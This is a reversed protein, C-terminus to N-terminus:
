LDKDTLVHTDMDSGSRRENYYRLLTHLLRFITNSDTANSRYKAMYLENEAVDKLHQTFIKLM